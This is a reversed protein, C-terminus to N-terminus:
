RSYESVFLGWFQSADSAPHRLHGFAFRRRPLPLEPHLFSISDPSFQRSQDDSRGLASRHQPHPLEVVLDLLGFVAMEENGFSLRLLVRVVWAVSTSHM